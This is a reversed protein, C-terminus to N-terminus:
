TISSIQKEKENNNLVSVNSLLAIDKTSKNKVGYYDLNVSNAPPTLTPNSFSSPEKGKVAIAESVSLCQSMLILAAVFLTARTIICHSGNSNNSQCTM